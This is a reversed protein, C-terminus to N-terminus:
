LVPTNARLMPLSSRFLHDCHLNQNGIAGLSAASGSNGLHDAFLHLRRTCDDGHTWRALHSTDIAEIRNDHSTGQIGESPVTISAVQWAIRELM